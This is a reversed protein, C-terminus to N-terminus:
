ILHLTGLVIGPLIFLWNVATIITTTATKTATIIIMIALNQTETNSQFIYDRYNNGIEQTIEFLYIIEGKYVDVDGDRFHLELNDRNKGGEFDLIRYLYLTFSHTCSLFIPTNPFLSPFHHNRYPQSM